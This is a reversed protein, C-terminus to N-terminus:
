VVGSGHKITITIEIEDKCQSLNTWETELKESIAKEVQERNANVPVEVKISCSDSRM